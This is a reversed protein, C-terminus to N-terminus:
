ACYVCSCLESQWAAHALVGRVIDLEALIFDKVWIGIEWLHLAYEAMTMDELTEM